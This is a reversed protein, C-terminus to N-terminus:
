AGLVEAARACESLLEELPPLNADREVLTPKAGFRRVAVELLSWVPEPVAADHTDLQTPATPALHGAVHFEMVMEPSLAAMVAAASEGHNCQNLYLNELDLVLGCGSRRCIEALYEGEPLSSAAFRVYSTLNEVAVRRKLRTQLFDIREVALAVTEEMAPVPLLDYHHVGNLRNWCLHESVLVPELREVLAQLEQLHREDPPAPSLLGM